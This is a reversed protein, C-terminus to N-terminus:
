IINKFIRCLKFFYIYRVKLALSDPSIERSIYTFKILSMAVVENQTKIM